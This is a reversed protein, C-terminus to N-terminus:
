MQQLIKAGVCSCAMEVWVVPWSFSRVLPWGQYPNDICNLAKELAVVPDKLHVEWLRTETGEWFTIKALQIMSNEGRDKAAKM